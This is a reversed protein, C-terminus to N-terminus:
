VGRDGLLSVGGAGDMLPVAACTWGVAGARQNCSDKCGQYKCVSVLGDAEGSALMLQRSFNVFYAAASQESCPLVASAPHEEGLQLKRPDQHLSFSFFHNKL